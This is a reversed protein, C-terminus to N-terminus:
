VWFEPLPDVGVGEGVLDGEGVPDGEGVLDGEGPTVGVGLGEGEGPTEIEGLGEAGGPPPTSSFPNGTQASTFRIKLM